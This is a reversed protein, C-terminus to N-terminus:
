VQMLEGPRPLLGSPLIVTDVVHLVGNTAPVDTSIAMSLSDVQPIQLVLQAFLSEELAIFTGDSLYTSRQWGPSTWGQASQDQPLPGDHLGPHM